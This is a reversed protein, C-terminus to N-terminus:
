RPHRSHFAGSCDYWTVKKKTWIVGLYPGIGDLDEPSPQPDENPHNHMFGILYGVDAHRPIDLDQAKVSFGNATDHHANDILTMGQIAVYACLRRPFPVVIGWLAYVTENEQPANNDYPWFPEEIIVLSTDQSSLGLSPM